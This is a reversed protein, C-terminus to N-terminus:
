YYYHGQTESAKNLVTGVINSGALVDHAAVIEGAQTKGEEVVLLFADVLPSFALADDVALVPPLDFIVVRDPYRGALEEALSRMQPSALLESSDRVRGKGPLLVFREIEPNILVESLAVEGKLYEAIGHEVEIGFFEHLGPRRLDLDVLLVTRDIERAISLGLNVATLSKGEGPGPSSIALTHWGYEDMTRLTRTRLMRYADALASGDATEHAVVRHRQMTVPDPAVVRTQTYDIALPSRRATAPPPEPQAEVPPAIDRGSQQAERLERARELAEKIREM